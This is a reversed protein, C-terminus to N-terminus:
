KHLLKVVNHSFPTQFSNLYEVEFDNIFYPISKQWEVQPRQQSHFYALSASLKFM